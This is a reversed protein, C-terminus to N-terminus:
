KKKISIKNETGRLLRVINARHRWYTLATLFLVVACFEVRVSPDLYYGGQQTFCVTMIFFATVVLLSGLSVFRTIAVTGIFLVLCLLTTRWDMLLMLAATCAVGKGGKFNMYCPYNHGLVVGTAMYVMYLYAHGLDKEKFIWLTILCPILCKFADGLFVILGAKKGMVRLSNTAGSNGSGEKRIDIGKMKGYWYGTEILGCCYGIILLLVRIMM